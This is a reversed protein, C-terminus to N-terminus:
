NAMSMKRVVKKTNLVSLFISEQHTKHFGTIYIKSDKRSCRIETVVQTRNSTSTVKSRFTDLEKAIKNIISETEKSKKM